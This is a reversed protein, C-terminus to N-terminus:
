RCQPGAAVAKAPLTAARLLLKRRRRRPLGSKKARRRGPQRVTRDQFAAAAFPPPPSLLSPCSNTCLAACLWCGTVSGGQWTLGPVASVMIDPLGQGTCLRSVPVVNGRLEAPRSHHPLQCAAHCHQAPGDAATFSSCPRNHPGPLRPGTRAANPKCLRHSHSVLYVAQVRGLMGGLDNGMPVSCLPLSSAFAARTLTSFATTRTCGGLMGRPTRLLWVVRCESMTGPSGIAAGVAGGVYTAASAAFMGSCPTHPDTLSRGVCASCLAACAGRM